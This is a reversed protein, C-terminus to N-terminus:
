APKDSAKKSDLLGRLYAGIFMAAIALLVPLNGTGLSAIASGPCLGSLGWGVGFIVAGIIVNRSLSIHRPEYATGFPPKKILKALINIAIFTVLAAAGMVFLLGLDKLPFFSLVIEQKTMGSYALGFGFIIGGALVILNQKNM